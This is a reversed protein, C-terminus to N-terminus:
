SDIIPNRITTDIGFIGFFLLRAFVSIVSLRSCLVTVTEQVASVIDTKVISGQYGQKM